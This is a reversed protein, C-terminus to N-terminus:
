GGISHFSTERPPTPEQEASPTGVQSITVDAMSPEVDDYSLGPPLLVRVELRYSGSERGDVDVVATPTAGEFEELAEPTGGVVFSVLSPTVIARFGDPVNVAEIEVEEFTLRQQEIPVWVDVTTEDVEVENSIDSLDLEVDLVWGASTLGSVDVPQTPISTIESLADEPGSVRVTSPIAAAEPFEQIELNGDSICSCVVSVPVFRETTRFTVEVEISQPQITVDEVENGDSGLAILDFNDTFSDIKM